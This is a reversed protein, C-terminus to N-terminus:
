AASRPPPRRAPTRRPDRCRSPRRSSDPAPPRAARARRRRASRSPSAPRGAPTSPPPARAASRSTIVPATAAERAAPPRVRDGPRHLPRCRRARRSRPSCTPDVQVLVQQAVLRQPPRHPAVAAPVSPSPPRAHGASCSGYVVASSACRSCGSSSLATNRRTRACTSSRRRVSPAAAARSSALALEPCEDRRRAVVPAAADCPVVVHPGPTVCVPLLVVMRYDAQVPIIRLRVHTPQALLRTLAIPQRALDSHSYAARAPVVVGQNQPSRASSRHSYAVPRSESSPQSSPQSRVAGTPDNRAFPNPSCSM